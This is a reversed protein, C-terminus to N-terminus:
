APCHTWVRLDAPLPATTSDQFTVGGLLGRRYNQHILAGAGSQHELIFAVAENQKKGDPSDLLVDFMMGSARLTGDEAAESVAETMLDEVEHPEAQAANITIEGAHNMLAVAPRFLNKGLVERTVKLMAEHLQILDPHNM